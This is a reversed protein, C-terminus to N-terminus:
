LVKITSSLGSLTFSASIMKHYRGVAAWCILFSLLYASKMEM